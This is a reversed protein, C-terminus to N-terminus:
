RWPLEIRGMPGFPGVASLGRRRRDVIPGGAPAPPEVKFELAIMGWAQSSGLVGSPSASAGADAKFLTSTLHASGASPSSADQEGLFTTDGDLTVNVSTDRHTLVGYVMNGATSAIGAAPAASVGTAAISAGIPDGAKGGIIPICWAVLRASANKITIVVNATTETPADLVFGHAQADPIVSQSAYVRRAGLSESGNFVVTDIVDALDLTLPRSSILVALSSAGTTNVSVSLTGAIALNGSWGSTITGNTIPM